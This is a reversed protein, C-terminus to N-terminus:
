FRCCGGSLPVNKKMRGNDLCVCSVAYSKQKKHEPVGERSAHNEKLKAKDVTLKMSTGEQNHKESPSLIM